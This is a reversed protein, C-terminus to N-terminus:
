TARKEMESMNREERPHAEGQEPAAAVADTGNTPDAHPDPLHGVHPAAAPKMAVQALRLTMTKM